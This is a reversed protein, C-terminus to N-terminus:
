NVLGCKPCKGIFDGAGNPQGLFPTGCQKCLYPNAYLTRKNCKPCKYGPGLAPAAASDGDLAVAKADGFFGCSSCLVKAVFASIGPEPKTEDSPRLIWVMGGICVAAVAGVILLGRGLSRGGADSKGPRHSM